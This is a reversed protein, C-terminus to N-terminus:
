QKSPSHKGLVANIATMATGDLNAADSASM